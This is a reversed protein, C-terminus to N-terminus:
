TTFLSKVAQQFTIREEEIVSAYRRIKVWCPPYFVGDYVFPRKLAVSVKTQTM